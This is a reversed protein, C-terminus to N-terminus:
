GGSRASGKASRGAGRHGGVALVLRDSRRARRASHPLLCASAVKWLAEEMGDRENSKPKNKGRMNESGHRISPQRPHSRSMFKSGRVPSSGYRTQSSAVREHLSPASPVWLTSALATRREASSVQATRSAAYAAPPVGSRAPRPRRASRERALHNKHPPAPSVAASIEPRPM